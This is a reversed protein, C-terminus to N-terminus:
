TIPLIIDFFVEGQLFRQPVRQRYIAVTDQKSLSVHNSNGPVNDASHGKLKPLQSYTLFTFVVFVCFFWCFM